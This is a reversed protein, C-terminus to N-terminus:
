SRLGWFRALSRLTYLVSYSLILLTFCFPHMSCPINVLSVQKKENVLGPFMPICIKYLPVEIPTFSTNNTGWKLIKFKKICNRSPWYPVCMSSM